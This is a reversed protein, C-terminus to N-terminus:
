PRAWMTQPGRQTHRGTALAATGDPACCTRIRKQRGVVVRQKELVIAKQLGIRRRLLIAAPKEFFIVTRRGAVARSKGGIELSSKSAELLGANKGRAESNGRRSVLARGSSAPESIIRPFWSRSTALAFLSPM